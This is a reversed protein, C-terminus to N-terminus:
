CIPFPFDGFYCRKRVINESKTSTFYGTKDFVKNWTSRARPVVGSQPYPTLKVKGSCRIIEVLCDLRTGRFMPYESIWRNIIYSKKKGLSICHKIQLVMKKGM